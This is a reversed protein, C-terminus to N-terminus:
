YNISLLVLIRMHFYNLDGNIKEKANIQHHKDEKHNNSSKSNLKKHNLSYDYIM